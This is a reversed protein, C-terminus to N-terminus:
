IDVKPNKDRLDRCRDIHDILEKVKLGNDLKQDFVSFNKNDQM